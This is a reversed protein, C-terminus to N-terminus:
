LTAKSLIKTGIPETHGENSSSIKSMVFKSGHGVPQRLPPTLGGTTIIYTSIILGILGYIIQYTQLTGFM